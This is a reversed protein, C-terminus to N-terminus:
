VTPVLLYEYTVLESCPKQHKENLPSNFVVTADIRTKANDAATKADEYGAHAEMRMVPAGNRTKLRVGAITYQNFEATGDAAVELGSKGKVAGDWTPQTKILDAVESQKKGLGSVEELNVSAAAVKGTKDFYLSNFAGATIEVVKGNEDKVVLVQIPKDNTATPYRNEREETASYKITSGVMSPNLIEANSPMAEVFNKGLKGM